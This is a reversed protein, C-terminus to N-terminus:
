TDAVDDVMDDQGLGDAQDGLQDGDQGSVGGLTGQEFEVSDVLGDRDSDISALDSGQYAEVSDKVGDKDTDARTPDGGLKYEQLDSVGDKDRDLTEGGAFGAALAEEPLAAQGTGLGLKAAKGDVIGDANTDGALPDAHLVAAEQYDTLGDMDTDASHIDTGLLKEFEDTLNDHDSDKATISRGAVAEFDDGRVVGQDTLRDGFRYTHFPVDPGNDPADGQLGDGGTKYAIVQAAANEDLEKDGIAVAHIHPDFGQDDTRYWAAFGIMRLARVAEDREDETWDRTRIDIVGGEDHTSGSASAGHGHMYSGQVITIDLGTFREVENLMANTRANIVVDRGSSDKGISVHRYPDGM